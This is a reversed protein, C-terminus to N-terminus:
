QRRLGLGRGLQQHHIVPRAVASGFQGMLAAGADDRHPAIRPERGGDVPADAFGAALPDRHQIVIHFQRRIVELLQAGGACPEGGALNQTGALRGHDVGSEVGEAAAAGGPAHAAAAGVAM